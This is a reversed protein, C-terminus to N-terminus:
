PSTIMFNQVHNKRDSCFGTVVALLGFITGWLSIEGPQSDLQSSNPM